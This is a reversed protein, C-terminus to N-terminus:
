TTVTAIKGIIKIAQPPELILDITRPSLLFRSAKTGADFIPIDAGLEPPISVLDTILEANDGNISLSRVEVEAQAFRAILQKPRNNPM